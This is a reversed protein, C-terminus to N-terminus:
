SDQGRDRRTIGEIGGSLNMRYDISQWSITNSTWTRLLQVPAILTFLFFAAVRRGLPARNPIVSTYWPAILALAAVYLLADARDGMAAPAILAMAMWAILGLYCLPLISAAAWTFPTYYKFFQLQRYFWDAAGRVSQGSIHTELCAEAVPVSRIGLGQLYPGMSYDDVVTRSWLDPIRNDQFSKRDIATAGGWPQSLPRIAYLMHISQVALMQILTGLRTDDPQVFRYGSALKAGGEAIPQILRALFDPRALHTSDCFVLIEPEPGLEAVAALLNHNKQSCTGAEGAVVHRAHAYETCLRRILQAAPETGTRSILTVTYNDLDQELLSRLGPETQATVNGVPVLLATAVPGPRKFPTDRRVARRMFNRTGALLLLLLLIHLAMGSRAFLSLSVLDPQPPLM